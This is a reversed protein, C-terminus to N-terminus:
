TTSSYTPVNHKTRPKIKNRKLSLPRDRGRLRSYVGCANCLQAGTKSRRWVSTHHTHCHSCEPGSGDGEPDSSDDAADADILEQPRHKNRQQLYLGCANCLPKLTYPERRWLPTSTAHCHSCIKGSSSSQDVSGRRSIPPSATSVSSTPSVQRRAGSAQETSASPATPAQQPFTYGPSPMYVHMEPSQSPSITDGWTSNLSMYQNEPLPHVWAAGTDPVDIGRSSDPWHSPQRESHSNSRPAISINHNDMSHPHSYAHIPYVIDQESRRRSSPTHRTYSSQFHTARPSLAPGSYVPPMYQSYRKQVRSSSSDTSSSYLNLHGLSRNALSPTQRINSGTPHDSSM